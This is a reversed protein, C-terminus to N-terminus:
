KMNGRVVNAGKLPLYRKVEQLCKWHRQSPFLTSIPRQNTNQKRRPNTKVVRLFFKDSRPMEIKSIKKSGKQTKSGFHRTVSYSFMWPQSKKKWTCFCLEFAAPFCSKHPKPIKKKGSVILNSSENQQFFKCWFLDETLIWTCQTWPMISFLLQLRKSSYLQILASSSNSPLLYVPTFKLGSWLSVAFSVNIVEHRLRAFVWCPTETNGPAKVVPLVSFGEGPNLDGSSCCTFSRVCHLHPVSM